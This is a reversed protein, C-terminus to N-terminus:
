LFELLHCEQKCLGEHYNHFYLSMTLLGIQGLWINNSLKPLFFWFGLTSFTVFNFKGRYIMTIITIFRHICVILVYSMNGKPFNVRVFGFKLFCSFVM